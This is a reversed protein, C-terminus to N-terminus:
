KKLLDDIGLESAKDMLQKLKSAQDPSADTMLKGMLASLTLNSVDSSSFKPNALVDKIDGPLSKTGDLYDGAVAKLTDSRDLAGDISKGVSVANVFRDFFQGDGGVIDIKANGFAKGLIEAQALAVDKQVNLAELKVQKEVELKIRFEEHEKAAGQLAKMAETKEKLGKAEAVMKAEVAEAEAAGKDRIMSAESAGLKQIVAADADKVKVEALGKDEIGQAEASMKERLVKAEVMGQKETAAADAEKVQVAALGSAAEEAKLGDARRIKAKAERDAAELDADAMLVREKAKFAAAKEQAEAAKIDKVLAEQAEAEATIVKVDAQRKATMNARLDKIREEEEAVTKEVAVRSRVVDAIEKKEKEVAKDKEIRNLDVDRERAIVELLREREVRESEVAVVRQRNLNAVEVQRNKNEEAVRIEEEAKIQAEKAKKLEEANVRETEAKERARVNAVERAQAAEAAAQQRELALVAERTEVNDKTMRKKEENRLLNTEVNKIATLETISRIGEADLINEPDLAELPTQELYDIAAADLVYGNLDEGIERLIAEKFQDREKYLDEFRLQYGVTKLAESFKALFLQELTEQDSARNCGISTAVKRVDEETKNVRVYFTVQIDARVKDACILGDKGRRHLEITKLSIDMTEAKHIVPLVLGGTFSVEPEKGTKNILLARGQEVKKYFNKVLLLGGVLLVATTALVIGIISLIGVVNV